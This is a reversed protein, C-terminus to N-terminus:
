CRSITPGEMDRLRVEGCEDLHVELYRSVGFRRAAASQLDSLLEDTRTFPSRSTPSSEFFPVDSTPGLAWILLDGLQKTEGVLIKLSVCGSTM